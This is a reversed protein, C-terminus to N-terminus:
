KVAFHLILILLVEEAEAAMREPQNLLGVPAAEAVMGALAALAALEM